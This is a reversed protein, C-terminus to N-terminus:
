LDISWIENVLGELTEMRQLKRARIECEWVVLVKWGKEQLLLMDRHDRQRNRMIKAEWFDTNTKPLRYLHCGEHGHWFCGNIFIVTRYKPLIIDPSGPLKRDHLRFRFGRSFLFRRVIIEPRTNRSQISAMIRSRKQTTFMDM